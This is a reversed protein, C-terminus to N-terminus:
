SLRRGEGDTDRPNLQVVNIKKSLEVSLIREVRQRTRIFKTVKGNNLCLRVAEREQCSEEKKFHKLTKFIM